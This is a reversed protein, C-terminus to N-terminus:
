KFINIAKKISKELIEIDSEQNYISFSVRALANVQLRDMLPKACHHGARICINDEALISALDHPHINEIEFSLLNTFQDPHNPGFIQIVSFKSLMDYCTKVLKKEYENIKELDIEQMMEISKSLAYIGAVNPTGAEFKSPIDLWQNPLDKIMGGGFQYPNLKEALNQKIYVWGTGMPGFLKHGTFFALDCNLNNVDIQYNTAAQALDLAILVNNDKASKIINKLNPKIGLVNSLGTIALLKVKKDQLIELDKDDFDGNLNKVKIVKFQLNNKRAIEQWPLFNSHHELETSVIIDGKEFNQAIIEASMNAGETANKTFIIENEQANCFNAIIKRSNEYMQDAKEALKYVGRHINANYLQYFENEANMVIQPKQTTSASDLYILDPYNEFIPFLKRIETINM